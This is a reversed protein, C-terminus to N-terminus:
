LSDIWIYRIQFIRTVVIADQFTKPLSSLTIGQKLTEETLKTLQIQQPNKGWCHSLVTYAAGAITEVGDCLYM